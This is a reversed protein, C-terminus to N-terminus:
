ENFPLEECSVPPNGGFKNIMKQPYGNVLLWKIMDKPEEGNAEIFPKPFGYQSGEEPVVWTITNKDNSAEVLTEAEFEIWDDWSIYELFRWYGGLRGALKQSIELKTLYEPFVIVRRKTGIKGYIALRGTM